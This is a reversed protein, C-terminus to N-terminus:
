GQGRTFDAEVSGPLADPMGVEAFRGKARTVGYLSFRLVPLHSSFIDSTVFRSPMKLRSSWTAVRGSDCLREGNLRMVRSALSAYRKCEIM